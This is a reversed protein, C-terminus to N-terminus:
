WLHSQGCIASKARKRREFGMEKFRISLTQPVPSSLVKVWIVQLCPLHIIDQRRM